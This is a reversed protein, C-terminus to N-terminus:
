INNEPKSKIRPNRVFYTLSNKSGSISCSYSVAWREQSSRGICKYCLRHEDSFIFSAGWGFCNSREVVAVWLPKRAMHRIHSPYMHGLVLREEM